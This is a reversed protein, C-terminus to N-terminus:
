AHLAEEGFPARLRIMRGDGRIIDGTQVIQDFLRKTKEVDGMCYNAVAVHHGQAWLRPATAGDIEKAGSGDVYLIYQDEGTDANRVLVQYERAPMASGIYLQGGPPPGSFNLPWPIQLAPTGMGVNGEADYRVPYEALPKSTGVYHVLLLGYLVLSQLVLLGCATTAKM